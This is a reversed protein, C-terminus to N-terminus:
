GWFEGAFDDHCDIKGCVESKEHGKHTKKLTSVDPPIFFLGMMKEIREM